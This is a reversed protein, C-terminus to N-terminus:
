TFARNYKKNIGIGCGYCSHVIIISVGIIFYYFM